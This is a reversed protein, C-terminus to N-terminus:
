QGEVKHNLAKTGEFVISFLGCIVKISTILCVILSSVDKLFCLLVKAVYKSDDGRRKVKVQLVYFPNGVCWIVFQKLFSFSLQSSAQIFQSDLSYGDNWRVNHLAYASPVAQIHYSISSCQCSHQNYEYVIRLFYMVQTDYEVCHANTLLKGNGIM